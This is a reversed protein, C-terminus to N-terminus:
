RRSPSSRRRDVLELADEAELGRRAEPVEDSRPARSRGTTKTVWMSCWELWVDQHSVIASTTTIGGSSRPGPPGRRGELRQQVLVAIPRTLIPAKVAQEFTVPMAVGYWARAFSMCRAPPTANTSKAAERARRASRCAGRRGRPAARRPSTRAACTGRRARSTPRAPRRGRREVVVGHGVVGAAARHRPGVRPALVGEECSTSARSSAPVGPKRCAMLAASATRSLSAIPTSAMRRRSASITGRAIAPRSAM